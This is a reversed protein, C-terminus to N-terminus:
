FASSRAQRLLCLRLAGQTVVLVSKKFVGAEVVALREQGGPV